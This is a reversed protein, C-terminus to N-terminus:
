ISAKAVRRRKAGGEFSADTRLKKFVQVQRSLKRKEGTLKIVQERLSVNSSNAEALQSQHEDLRKQMDDMARKSLRQERM